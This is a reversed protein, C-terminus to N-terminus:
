RRIFRLEGAGADYNYDCDYGDGFARIIAETRRDLGEESAGPPFLLSVADSGEVVATDGSELANLKTELVKLYETV